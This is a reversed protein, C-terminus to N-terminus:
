IEKIQRPFFCLTSNFVCLTSNFVIEKGIEFAVKDIKSSFM